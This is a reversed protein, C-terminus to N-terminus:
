DIKRVKTTPFNYKMSLLSHDENFGFWIKKYRIDIDGNLEEGSIIQDKIYYFNRIGIKQESPWYCWDLFVFNLPYCTPRYALWCHGALQVDGCFLLLRNAPVGKIRCLVYQLIAGDECDGTRLYLTEDARQWYDPRHWKNQDGEYKLLHVVAQLVNIVTEDVEKGNSINDALEM